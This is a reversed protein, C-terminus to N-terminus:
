CGCCGLEHAGVAYWDTRIGSWLFYDLCGAVEGNLHIVKGISGVRLTFMGETGVFLIQRHLLGLLSHSSSTSPGRCILLRLDRPKRIRPNRTRITLVHPTFWGIAIWSLLFQLLERFLSFVQTSLQLMRLLPTM